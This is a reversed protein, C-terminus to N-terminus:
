KVKLGVFTMDDTTDEEGRYQHITDLYVKKQEAFDLHHNDLLLQRFQKKGYPYGKTGGNQDLFGDTVMYFCTERDVEIIHDKFLYFADSKKYGISQRDGKIMNLKSDQIYFLPTEAGAFKAIKQEKNLYLVGGDFGANSNATKDQQQLIYKLKLNFYSLVKAPSIEGKSSLVEGLAQLEVAKVIATVLAGPVGHGTCDIVFLILENENRLKEIFFIDGGVVDKPEWITFSDMCFDTLIDKDPLLANQIMSAFQISDTIKQHSDELAVETKKRVKIEESLEKTRDEVKIELEEQYSELIKEKDRLNQRTSLLKEIMRNFSTELVKLENNRQYTRINLNKHNELSELDMDENVQTLKSLPLTILKKGILLVIIWLAATKVIANLIILFFSTKVRNFIISSNSYITITGVPQKIGDEEIQLPAQYQIDGSQGFLKGFNQDKIEIGSVTPSVLLGQAIVGIQDYNIDWLALAISSESSKEITVLEDFVFDGTRDWESYMHICTLIITIFIYISFTIEMLQFALSERIKM